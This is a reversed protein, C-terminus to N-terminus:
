LGDPENPCRDLPATEDALAIWRLQFGVPRDVEGTLPAVSADRHITSVHPTELSV